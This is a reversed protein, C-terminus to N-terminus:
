QLPHLQDPPEGFTIFVGGAFCNLLSLLWSNFIGELGRVGRLLPLFVGLLAEVFLVAAALGKLWDINQPCVM